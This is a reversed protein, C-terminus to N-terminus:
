KTFGDVDTDVKLGTIRRSGALASYGNGGIGVVAEGVGTDGMKVVVFGALGLGVLIFNGGAELIKM